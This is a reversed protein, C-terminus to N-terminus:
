PTARGWTSPKGMRRTTHGRQSGGAADPSKPRTVGDTSGSGNADASPGGMNVNISELPIVYTATVMCGKGAIAPEETPVPYILNM